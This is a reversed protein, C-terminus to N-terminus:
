VFLETPVVPTLVNVKSNHLNVVCLEHVRFKDCRHVVSVEKAIPELMLAWYVASDGGGLVTVRRGAFQNLDSTFYHLI